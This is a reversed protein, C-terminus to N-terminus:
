RGILMIVYSATAVGMSGLAMARHKNKASTGV